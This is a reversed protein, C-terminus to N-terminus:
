PAPSFHEYIPHFLNTDLSPYAATGVAYGAGLPVLLVIGVAAGLPAGVFLPAAGLESLAGISGLFAGEGGLSLAAAGALAVESIAHTAAVYMGIVTTTGVVVGSLAVFTQSAKREWYGSSQEMAALTSAGLRSETLNLSFDLLAIQYQLQASKCAWDHDPCRGATVIIEEQPPNEPACETQGCSGDFFRVEFGTPDTFSLPNNMVYSYANLSQPRSLDGVVPDPSLMRGWVPNQVRGNMHILRVGDLQQHGTYGRELWQTETFLADTNDNAWDTNRRKGFADFSSAQAASGTVATVRDLSGLHDQHLYGEELLAGPGDVRAYVAREGFYVTSRYHTGTYATSTEVEFHPGVHYIVREDSGEHETTRVRERNPGYSFDAYTTTGSEVRKPLNFSYWLTTAGANCLGTGSNWAARTLTTTAQKM